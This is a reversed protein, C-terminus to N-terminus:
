DRRVLKCKAEIRDFLADLHIHLPAVAPPAWIMSSRCLDPTDRAATWREVVRAELDVIWYEAVHNAVYHDRKLVRDTHASSPSLVEVALLLSSVDSWQLTPGAMTIGAPIVFVDPQTITGEALELDAPSIVAIGAPHLELFADLLRCVEFVAIQHATRPAPTVLLEGGILEYRPWPQDERMLARVEDTTWRRTDSMVM